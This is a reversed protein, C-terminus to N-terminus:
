GELTVIAEAGKGARGNPGITGANRFIEFAVCSGVADVLLSDACTAATGALELLLLGLVNM